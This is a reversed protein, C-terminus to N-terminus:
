IHFRWRLDDDGKLPVGDELAKLAGDVGHLPELAERRRNERALVWWLTSVIVVNALLYGMAFGHGLLYRPSTAPRYLQTGLVAGLNGISIQLATATARKTQGAVNMAPWSLTLATAPYIGAAAFFTGVYSIGPRTTPSANSILIAYGIIGVLASGIIFPARKRVRESIIAITLTLFTALAYPPVSLLQASAATFGLDKIITPLFLALTYQPLSLTHFVLGYLWCKPDRLARAVGGWSFPEAAVADSDASLRNQVAAREPETLFPATSPYNAIFRFAFLSM